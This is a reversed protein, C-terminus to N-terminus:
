MELYFEKKINVLKEILFFIIFFNVKLFEIGDGIFLNLKPSDFSASMHPLYKKSVDIVM